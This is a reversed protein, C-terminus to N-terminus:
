NHGLGEKKYFIDPRWSDMEQVLEAISEEIRRHKEMSWESLYEKYVWTGLEKGVAELHERNMKLTEAEFFIKKWSSREWNYYLYQVCYFKYLETLCIKNKIYRELHMIVDDYEEKNKPNINFSFSSGPNKGANIVQVGIAPYEHGITGCVTLAFDVGEEKLQNPSIETEILKISSYKELYKDFFISDLRSADPHMKIYWDYQPTKQSLDGIHCLWSVYSNDFIQEGCYYSDEEFIHPCILVKIKNNNQLAKKSTEKKRFLSEHLWIGEIDEMSGNVRARVHKEAWALGYEKEESSLQEWFEGFYAYPEGIYHNLFLKQCIDIAYADIGKTIAIDRIYGEWLVGDSLIVTKIDNKEFYDYWFVISCLFKRFLGGMKETKPELDVLYFRQLQRMMTTGFHIGYVQISNWDEWTSISGWLESYLKDVRREQEDSLQYRIIDKMGCCAKYIEKMTDSADEYRGDLINIGWIEADYKSAFYRALYGEQVIRSLHRNEFLILVKRTKGNPVKGWIRNNLAIFENIADDEHFVCDNDWVFVTKGKELGKSELQELMESTYRKSAVIVKQNTRRSCFDTVKEVTKKHFTTGWRYNDIFGTISIENPIEDLMIDADIGTGLVVVPANGILEKCNTTTLYLNNM